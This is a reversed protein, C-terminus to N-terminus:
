RKEPFEPHLATRGYCDMHVVPWHDDWPIDEQFNVLWAGVRANNAYTMRSHSRPLIGTVSVPVRCRELLLVRNNHFSHPDAKPLVILCLAHWNMAIGQLTKRDEKRALM